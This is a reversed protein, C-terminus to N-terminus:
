YSLDGDARNELLRPIHSCDFANGAPPQPETPGSSHRQRRSHYPFTKKLRQSALFILCLDSFIFHIEFCWFIQFLFSSPLRKPPHNNRSGEENPPHNNRSGTFFFRKFLLQVVANLSFISPCIVWKIILNTLFSQFDEFLKNCVM